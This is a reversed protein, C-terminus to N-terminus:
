TQIEPDYEDPHKFVLSGDPNRWTSAVAAKATKLGGYANPDVRIWYDEYTGDSEPTSNVVKVMMISEDNKLEKKYLIGFDDRHVIIANSDIIFKDKGYKDIMVRRIEINQENIIDDVTFEGYIVSKPVRIGNISYVDCHDTGRYKVAPGNFNHLRGLDDVHIELPKHQFIAVNELPTWWGCAESLEILGELPKCCDLKLEQILYDYFSLWYEQNGYIQSNLTLSDYTIGNNLQDNIENLVYKNIANADKFDIKQNAAKELIAEALSAELPSNVPGIFIEPPSLNIAEYCKVAASKAKEFDCEDTNYGRSIWKNVYKSFREQQELTLETIM